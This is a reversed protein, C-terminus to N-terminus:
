CESLGMTLKMLLIDMCATVDQSETDLIVDPFHPPEYCADIGTFEHLSENEVKKYLGKPDRERCTDISAKVYIESFNVKAVTAKERAVERMIRHPSIASVIVILAQRALYTALEGIRRINEHRAEDSFGLDSNLGDRLSDGDLLCTVKGAQILKLELLTALTTKGSGSLGTFWIIQGSQQYQECRKQYGIHSQHPTINKM